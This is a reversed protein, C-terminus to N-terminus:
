KFIHPLFTHTTFHKKHAALFDNKDNKDNKDDREDGEFIRRKPSSVVVMVVRFLYDKEFFVPSVEFFV